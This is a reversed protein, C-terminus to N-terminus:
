VPGAALVALTKDYTDLALGFTAVIKARRM